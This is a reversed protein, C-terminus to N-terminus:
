RAGSLHLVPSFQRHQDQVDAQAIAVYRMTMHLDTHGLMEKLSFVQGGNRLFWIACTHRFTHPSCRIAEVGATRALRRLLQQLGSRTLAEGRESRFVPDSPAANRGRLAQNIARATLRSFYVSRRKNGKGLVVARKGIVDVNELRLACLESARVGTDLLLLLIAEDRFGHDSGKAALLLAGVQEKTFPQIQDARAVPPKLGAMPSEELCGEEVLWRFFTRLTTHYDKVTRPRVATHLKPNGWRGDPQNHGTSIYTLFQKIEPGGCSEVGNTQLWWLLKSLMFRRTRITEDSLQRYQCDLLWGDSLRKVEQVSVFREIEPSRFASKVVFFGGEPTSSPMGRASSVSMTLTSRAM